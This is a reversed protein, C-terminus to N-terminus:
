EGEPEPSEADPTEDFLLGYNILAAQEEVYEDCSGKTNTAKRLKKPSRLPDSKGMLKAVVGIPTLPGVGGKWLWPTKWTPDVTNALAGMFAKLIMYGLAGFDFDGMGPDEEEPGVARQWNGNAAGVANYLADASTAITGNFNSELAPYNKQALMRHILTLIAGQEKIFFARMLNEFHEKQHISEPEKMLKAFFKEVPTDVDAFKTILTYIDKKPDNDPFLFDDLTESADIKNSNGDYPFSTGSGLVDFINGEVDGFPLENQLHYIIQQLLWTNIWRPDSFNYAPNWPWIHPHVEEEAGISENEGLCLQTWYEIWERLGPLLYGSRFTDIAENAIPYLTTKALDFDFATNSFAKKYAVDRATFLNKVAQGLNNNAAPVYKFWLPYQYNKRNNYLELFTYTNIQHEPKGLAKGKKGSLYDVIGDDLDEAILGDLVGFESGLSDFFNERYYKWTFWRLPRGQQEGSWGGDPEEGEDVNKTEKDDWKPWAYEFDSWLGLPPKKLDTMSAVFASEFIDFIAKRTKESKLTLGSDEGYGTVASPVFLKSVNPTKFEITYIMNKAAAVGKGGGGAALWALVAKVAKTKALARQAIIAQNYGGYMYKGPDKEKDKLLVELLNALIDDYQKTWVYELSELFKMFAPQAAKRAEFLATEERTKIDDDTKYMETFFSLEDGWLQGNDHYDSFVRLLTDRLPKEEISEDNIVQDFAPPVVVLEESYHKKYIKHIFDFWKDSWGEPIEKQLTEIPLVVYKHPKSGDDKFDVAGVKEKLQRLVAEPTLDHWSVLQQINHASTNSGLPSQDYADQIGPRDTEAIYQSLRTVLKIDFFTKVDQLLLWSYFSFRPLYERNCDENFQDKSEKTMRNYWTVDGNDKPPIENSVKRSLLRSRWRNSSGPTGDLNLSSHFAYMMDLYLRTTHSTVDYKTIEGDGLAEIGTDGVPIGGFGGLKGGMPRMPVNSIGPDEGGPPGGPQKTYPMYKWLKSIYDGSANKCNENYAYEAKIDPASYGDGSESKGPIRKMLGPISRGELIKNSPIPGLQYGNAYYAHFYPHAIDTLYKGAPNNYQPAYGAAVMASGVTSKPTASLGELALQLIPYQFNAMLAEFDNIYIKGTLSWDLKTWRTKNSGAVALRGNMLDVRDKNSMAGYEGTAPVLDESPEPAFNFRFLQWLPNSGEGFQKALDPDELLAKAQPFLLILKTEYLMNRLLDLRTNGAAPFGHSRSDIVVKPNEGNLAYKAMSKFELRLAKLLGGDGGLDSIKRWLDTNYKLEVFKETVFGSNVGGLYVNLNNINEDFSPIKTFFSKLPKKHTRVIKFQNLDGQETKVWESSGFVPDSFSASQKTQISSVPSTTPEGGLYKHRKKLDITEAPAMTHIYHTLYDNELVRLQEAYGIEDLLDLYKEEEDYDGEKLKVQQILRRDFFGPSNTLQPPLASKLVEKVFNVQDMIMINLADEDLLSEDQHLIRMLGTIFEAIVETYFTDLSGDGMSEFQLQLAREIEADLYQAFVPTERENDPTKPDWTYTYLDEISAFGFVFLSKMMEKVVIARILCDLTVKVYALDTSSKTVAMPNHCYLANALNQVQSNLVRPNFFGLFCRGVGAKPLKKKLQLANFIALNPDPKIETGNELTEVKADLYLGSRSTLLLLEQFIENLALMYLDQEQLFDELDTELDSAFPNASKAISSGEEYSQAYKTMYSDDFTGGFPPAKSVSYTFIDEVVDDDIQAAAFASLTAADLTSAMVALDYATKAATMAAEIEAESDQLKYVEQWADLAKSETEDSAGSTAALENLKTAATLATATAKAASDYAEKASALSAQLAELNAVGGADAQGGTTDPPSEPIVQLALELQNHQLTPNYSFVVKRKLPTDYATNAGVDPNYEFKIVSSAPTNTEPDAEEIEEKYFSVPSVSQEGDDDDPNLLSHIENAIKYAALPTELEATEEKIKDLLPGKMLSPLSDTNEPDYETNKLEEVNIPLLTGGPGKPMMVSELDRYIGKVRGIETEFVKHIGGFIAKSAQESGFKQSEHHPNIKGTSSEANEADDDKPKPFCLQEPQVPGGLVNNMANMMAGVLDKNRKKGEALANLLDEPDLYKALEAKKFDDNVDGCINILAQKQKEWMQEAIVLFEKDINDSVIKFFVRVGSENVYKIYFASGKIESIGKLVMLAEHYLKDSATSLLLSKMEHITFASSLTDLILKYHSASLNTHTAVKLYSRSKDLSPPIPHGPKPQIMFGALSIKNLPSYPANAVEAESCMELLNNIIHMIGNLILDRAINLGLQVLADKLGKLIDMVPYDTSFFIKIRKNIADSLRDANQRIFRDPLQPNSKLLLYLGYLAAPIIAYIAGCLVLRMKQNKWIEDFAADFEKVIPVDRLVDLAKNQSEIQKLSEQLIGLIQDLFLSRAIDRAAVVANGDDSSPNVKKIGTALPTLYLAKNVVTWVGAPTKEIGLAHGTAELGPLGLQDAATFLQELRTQAITQDEYFTFSVDKLYKPTPFRKPKRSKEDDGMWGFYPNLEAVAPLIEQRIKLYQAAQTKLVNKAAILKARKAELANAEAELSALFGEEGPPTHGILQERDSQTRIVGPMDGGGTPSWPSTDINGKLTILREDIDNILSNTDPLTDGFPTVGTGAEERDIEEKKMMWTKDIDDVFRQIRSAKQWTYSTVADSGLKTLYNLGRDLQKSLEKHTVYEAKGIGYKVKQGLYRSLPDGRDFEALLGNKHEDYNRLAKACIEKELEDLGMMQMLCQAATTMLTPLSIHNLVSKYFDDLNSIQDFEGRIFKVGLADGVQEYVNGLEKELNHKASQGMRRGGPTNSDKGTLNQYRTYYDDDLYRVDGLIYKEILRDADDFSVVKPSPVIYREVFGMIDEKNAFLGDNDSEYRVNYKKYIESLAGILSNTTRNALLHPAQRLKSGNLVIRAADHHKTVDTGPTPSAYDGLLNLYALGKKTLDWLDKVYVEKGEIPKGKNPGDQHIPTLIDSMSPATGSKLTGLYKLHKSEIKLAFGFHDQGGSQEVATRWRQVPSQPHRLPATNGKAVFDLIDFEGSFTMKVNVACDIKSLPFGCEEVLGRVTDSFVNLRRIHLQVDFPIDFEVGKAKIREDLQQLVETAVRVYRPINCINYDVQWYQYAMYRARDKSPDPATIASAGKTSTTPTSTTPAAAKKANATPNNFILSSQAANGVRAYLELVARPIQVVFRIIRTQQGAPPADVTLKRGDIYNIKKMINLWANQKALMNGKLVSQPGASLSLHERFNYAAEEKVRETLKQFFGAKYGKWEGSTIPKAPPAFAVTNPAGVTFVIEGFYFVILPNGKVMYAKNVHTDLAFKSKKGPLNKGSVTVQLHENKLLDYAAASKAITVTTKSM